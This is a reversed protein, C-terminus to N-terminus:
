SGSPLSPSSMWRTPALPSPIPPRSSADQCYSTCYRLTEEIQQRPRQLHEQGEFSQADVEGVALFVLNKFHGPFLRLVWLLAHMSASRHKGVLLMATPQTPDIPPPFPVDKSSGSYLVDSERLHKRTEDYHRKTLLCLVIVLSTVIVTLWGGETFKEITTIVLVSTTLILGMASLLLRWGWRSGPDRHRWWYVCMGLLSLSFTLFVNISYLVVLLDVAGGTWALIPLSLESGFLGKFLPRLM